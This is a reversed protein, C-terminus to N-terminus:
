MRSLSRLSRELGERMGRQQEQQNSQTTLISLSVIHKFDYNSKLGCIDSVGLGKNYYYFFFHLKRYFSLHIGATM